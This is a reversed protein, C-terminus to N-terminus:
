APRLVGNHLFGHYEKTAISGAGATCTHGNKDVHLQDGITGHRVWCRHENDEKMTCNNARSDIHWDHGDPLRCAISLGDLGLPYLYRRLKAQAPEPPANCDWCAGSPLKNSPCEEGTALNRMIPSAINGIYPTYRGTYEWWSIPYEM